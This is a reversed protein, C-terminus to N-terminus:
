LFGKWFSKILFKQLFIFFLRGCFLPFIGKDHSGVELSLASVRVRQKLIDPLRPVALAVAAAVVAVVRSVDM